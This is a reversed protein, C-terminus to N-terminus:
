KRKRAVWPTKTKLTKNGKGKDKSSFIKSGVRGGLGGAVGGVFAWGMEKLKERTGRSLGRRKADALTEYTDM